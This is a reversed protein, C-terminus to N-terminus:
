IYTLPKTGPNTDVNRKQYGASYKGKGFLTSLLASPEM